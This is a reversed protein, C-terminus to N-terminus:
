NISERYKNIYRQFSKFGDLYTGFAYMKKGAYGFGSSQSEVFHINLKKAVDSLEKRYKKNTSFLTIYKNDGGLVFIEKHFFGKEDVGVVLGEAYIGLDLPRIQKQIDQPLEQTIQNCIDTLKM